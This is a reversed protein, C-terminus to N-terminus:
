DKNKINTKVDTNVGWGGAVTDLIEENLEVKKTM